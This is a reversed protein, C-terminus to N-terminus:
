AGTRRARVSPGASSGPDIPRERWMARYAAELGRVFAQADCIPSSAMRPRLGARLSALRVPDGALGAALAVYADEDAAALDALGLRTLFSLTQRSAPREGPLTAVPVGMWLAECTTLGGCFPFPDLAVDVEAYEALM